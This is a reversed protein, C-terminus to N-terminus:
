AMRGSPTATAASNSRAQNATAHVVGGASEFLNPYEGARGGRGDFVVNSAEAASFQYEVGNVTVQRAGGAAFTFVDTGATGYVSVTDSATHVLNTLRFDVDQNVGSARLYVTEGAAVRVDIRERNTATASSGILRGTANFVQFDVNGAAHDFSAEITLIGDRSATIAFQDRGQGVQQDLIQRQEVTGWNVAAPAQAELKMNMKYFGLAGGGSLGFAYSKGAVVNFSLNGKADVNATGGSLSWQAAMQGRLVEASVTMVGSRTATFGFYDQDGIRGIVGSVSRTDTVGGLQFATAVGDGYEDAPMIANMARDVNLRLYSRGTAPDYVTDATNRMLREITDQNVQAQGVFAYAERLLASSGAVFPAAMSTGSYSVFDDARTNMNGRYDPVTSMIGRGPAAIARADRQSFSSLAGNADVSMVPVVHPSAAPYSLGTTNYRSFSNGAAVAVFIGSAKLQAFEDELMSWNPVVTSNWATGISINVTTIPNAFANRNKQVWQLAQEIWTFSSQGADNFVRLAVLDAGPAVGGYTADTSGIIGAVHTGHSGIPGDDYPNADNEAFDWGGVVKYVAGFGGGLARHDYGIGTDIVAVTQGAGTFGYNARAETVGAQDHAVSQSIPTAVPVLAFHDQTLQDLPQASMVLRPECSEFRAMHETRAHLRTGRM